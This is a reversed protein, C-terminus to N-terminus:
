LLERQLKLEKRRMQGQDTEHDYGLLHLLGHILLIRLETNLSHKREFAQKRATEVSVIMDGLTRNDFHLPHPQGCSGPPFSLIDTAKDKQRYDRNLRRIVQDNSLVVTFEVDPIRLKKGLTKAFQRLSSISIRYKRQRNLIIPGKM